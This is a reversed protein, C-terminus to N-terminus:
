VYCRPPYKMRGETGVTNNVRQIDGDMRAVLQAWYLSRVPFPSEVDSRTGKFMPKSTVGGKFGIIWNKTGPPDQFCNNHTRATCNYIVHFACTINDYLIGMAFREHPGSDNNGYDGISDVFVNPGCVRGLTTFDHRAYEALCRKVLGMQGSLNFMYRRGGEKPKSIPDKVSCDQITIYRSWAAAYIGSVFHKITVDAVWGHITNDVVIAYWGHDESMDEPGGPNAKGVLCLNEVGVDSITPFKHILEYIRSPPYNPDLCMVMPIDIIFTSTKQDIAVVKREFRFTFSKPTWQVSPNHNDPRCPLDDMGLYHIWEETGPREIVIRDGVSYGKTDKYGNRPMMERTRAKHLQTKQRGMDSSHMGNVLIFDRQITGNAIIITEQGEGRLVVGSANIILAGSVHYTGAKLLVAGRIRAGDNGICQLPLSAVEDIADQIRKRDDHHVGDHIDKPGLVKKIPVMPIKVHGERYGVRSFDPVTNGYIDPFKLANLDGTVM